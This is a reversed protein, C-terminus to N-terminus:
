IRSRIAYENSPKIIENLANLALKAKSANQFLFFHIKVLSEFNVQDSGNQGNNKAVFSIVNKILDSSLHALNLRSNPDKILNTLEKWCIQLANQDHALKRRIVIAM